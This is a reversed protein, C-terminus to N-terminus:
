RFRAGYGLVKRAEVQGFYTPAPISVVLDLPASRTPIDSGSRSIDVPLARPILMSLTALTQAMMDGVPASIDGIHPGNEQPVPDQYDPHAPNAKGPKSNFDWFRINGNKDTQIAQYDVGSTDGAIARDLDEELHWGKEADLKRIRDRLGSDKDLQKQLYASLYEPSGERARVRPGGNPNDIMAGDGLNPTGGGKADWVVIRGDKSAFMMDLVGSGSEESLPRGGEADREARAGAMGLDEGAKRYGGEMGHLEEVAARLKEIKEEQGPNAIALRDFADHRRGGNLEAWDAGELGALEGQIRKREDEVKKAESLYKHVDAGDKPLSTLAEKTQGEVRTVTADFYIDSTSWPDDTLQGGIPEGESDKAGVKWRPQGRRTDWNTNDWFYEPYSPPRKDRPPPWDPSAWDPLDGKNASPDVLGDEDSKPPQKGGRRPQTRPGRPEWPLGDVTLGGAGSPVGHEGWRGLIKALESEPAVTHVFAALDAPLAFHAEPGLVVTAALLLKALMSNMPSQTQTGLDEPLNPVLGSPEPEPTAGLTRGVGPSVTAPGIDEGLHLGRMADNLAGQTAAARLADGFGALGPFQDAAVIVQRLTEDGVAAMHAGEALGKIGRFLSVAVRDWPMIIAADIAVETVSPKSNNYSQGFNALTQVGPDGPSIEAPISTLGQVVPGTLFHAVNVYPALILEYDLKLASTLVDRFENFYPETHVQENNLVAAPNSLHLLSTEISDNLDNIKRDLWGPKPPENIFSSSPASFVAPFGNGDPTVTIQYKRNNQPDTSVFHNPIPNNKDDYEQVFAQPAVKYNKNSVTFSLLHHDAGINMDLISGNPNEEHVEMGTLLGQGVPGSYHSTITNGPSLTVTENRMVIPHDLGPGTITRVERTFKGDDSNEVDVNVQTGTAMHQPAIGPVLQQQAPTLGAADGVTPGANKLSGDPNYAGQLVPYQKLLDPDIHQLPEPNALGPLTETKTWPRDAGDTGGVQTEIRTTGDSMPTTTVRQGWQNTTTVPPGVPDAM